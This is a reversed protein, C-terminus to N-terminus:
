VCYYLILFIAALVCFSGGSILLFGFSSKYQEKYKKYEAYTRFKRDAPNRKFVSFVTRISYALMRFAGEDALFVLIGFLFVLLGPVTFADTLILYIEKLNTKSYIDKTSLILFFGGIMIAYVIIYKIFWLRNEKEEVINPKEM